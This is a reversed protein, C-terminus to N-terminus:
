ESVDQVSRLNELEDIMTRLRNAFWVPISISHWNKEDSMDTLRLGPDCASLVLDFSDAIPRAFEEWADGYENPDKTLGGCPLRYTRKM